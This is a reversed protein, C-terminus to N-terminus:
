SASEDKVDVVVFCEGGGCGDGLAVVLLLALAM